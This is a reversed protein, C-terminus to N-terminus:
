SSVLHIWPPGGQEEGIRRRQRLFPILTEFLLNRVMQAFPVQLFRGVSPSPALWCGAKVLHRVFKHSSSYSGTALKPVSSFTDTLLDKETRQHM